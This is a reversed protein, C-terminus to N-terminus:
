THCPSLNGSNGTTKYEQGFFKLSAYAPQADCGTVSTSWSAATQSPLVTPNTVGFSKHVKHVFAFTKATLCSASGSGTIDVGSLKPVVPFVDCGDLQGAFAASAGGVVGGLALTATLLVTASKEQLM